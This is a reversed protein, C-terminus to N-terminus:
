FRSAIRSRSSVISTSLCCTKPFLIKELERSRTRIPTAGLGNERNFVKALISGEPDVGVVTCKPNKEKLFKATGSITGGTGMGAIFHTIKGDTQEWIEPGTSAYHAEMNSPNDYQMPLFLV